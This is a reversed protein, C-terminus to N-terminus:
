GNWETKLRGGALCRLSVRRDNPSSGEGFNRRRSHTTTSSSLPANVESLRFNRQELDARGRGTRGLPFHALRERYRSLRRLKGQLLHGQTDLLEADPQNVFLQAYAFDLDMFNAVSWKLGTALFYRNNDARVTNAVPEGFDIAIEKRSGPL